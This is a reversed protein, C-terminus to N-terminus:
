FSARGGAQWVWSSTEGAKIGGGQNKKLLRYEAGTYLVVYDGFVHFNLGVFGAHLEDATRVIPYGFAAVSDTRANPVGWGMMVANPDNSDGYQYRTVLRVADELLWYAAQVNMGWVTNDGGNAILFDGLFDFRGSSLELGTAFLHQFDRPISGGGDEDLNYIYDFHWRQFVGADSEGADAEAEEEGSEGRGAWPGEYTYSITGLLFGSGEFDPINKDVGGSFWGVGWDWPGHRYDAMAGLTNAPVIQAAIYSPESFWRVTPDQRYELSFPARFKGFSLALNERAYVTAKLREIGQYGDGDAVFAAEVGTNHFAKLVAGLRARRMGSSDVNRESSAIDSEISGQEVRWDFLGTVAAEQAVPNTDRRYFSWLPPLQDIWRLDYDYDPVGPGTGGEEMGPAPVGIGPGGEAGELLDLAENAASPHAAWLVTTLISATIIRATM